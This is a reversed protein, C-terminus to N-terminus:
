LATCPIVLVELPLNVAMGENEDVYVKSRDTYLSTFKDLSKNGLSRAEEFQEKQRLERLLAHEDYDVDATTVRASQVANVYQKVRAM